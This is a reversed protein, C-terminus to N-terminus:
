AAAPAAVAVAAPTESPLEEAEEERFLQAWSPHVSTPDVEYRQRIEEVLAANVGFETLVESAPEESSWGGSGSPGDAAAQPPRAGREM